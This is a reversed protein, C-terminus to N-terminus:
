LVVERFSKSITELRTRNSLEKNTIKKSIEKLKNSNAITSLPSQMAAHSHQVSPPPVIYWNDEEWGCQLVPLKIVIMKIKTSGAFICVEMLPYNPWESLFDPLGLIKFSVTISFPIELHILLSTRILSVNQPSPVNYLYTQSCSM